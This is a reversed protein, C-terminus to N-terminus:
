VHLDLYKVADRIPTVSTSAGGGFHTAVAKAKNVVVRRDFLCLSLTPSCFDRIECHTLTLTILAILM